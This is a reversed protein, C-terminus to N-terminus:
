LNLKKMKRILEDFQIPTIRRVRRTLRKASFTRIQSLIAVSKETVAYHFKDQKSKSTMEIGLFLNSNYRKVILVPREFKENKGDEEFGINIGISCWWIERESFYPVFKVANIQKKAKNWEDFNKHYDQM